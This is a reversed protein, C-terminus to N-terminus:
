LGLFCAQEVESETGFCIVWPMRVGIRLIDQQGFRIIMGYVATAPQYSVMKPVGLVLNLEHVPDGIGMQSAIYEKTTWWAHFTKREQHKKGM